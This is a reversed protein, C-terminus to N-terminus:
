PCAVVTAQFSLMEASYRETVSPLVSHVWPWINRMNPMARWICTGQSLCCAARVTVVHKNSDRAISAEFEKFTARAEQKMRQNLARYDSLLGGCKTGASMVLLTLHLCLSGQYFM